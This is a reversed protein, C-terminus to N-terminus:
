AKSKLPLKPIRNIYILFLSASLEAGQPVGSKISKMESRVSEIEVFQKKNMIFSEFLKLQAVSLKARCPIADIQGGRTM